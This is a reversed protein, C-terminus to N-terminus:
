FLVRQFGALRSLSYLVPKSRVTMLPIDLPSTTPPRNSSVLGPFITSIQSETITSLSGRSRGQAIASSMGRAITAYSMDPKRGLM